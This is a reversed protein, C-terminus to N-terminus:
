RPGRQRTCSWGALPGTGEGWRASGSPAGRHDGLPAGGREKVRILRMCSGGAGHAAARGGGRLGGGDGIVHCHRCQKAQVILAGQLELPSSAKVYREPVPAGSWATMDPSWPSYTGLWGLVGLMLFMMIVLIWAGPRRQWSKEG